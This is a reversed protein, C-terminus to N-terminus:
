ANQAALVAVSLTELREFYARGAADLPVDRLAKRVLELAHSLSARREPSLPRPIGDSRLSATLSAGAEADLKVLPVDDISQALCTFPFPSGQHERWTAPLDM